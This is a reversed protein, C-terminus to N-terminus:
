LFILMFFQDVLAKAVIAVDAIRSMAAMTTPTKKHGAVGAALACVVAAGGM